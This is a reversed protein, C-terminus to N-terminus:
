CRSRWSTWCRAVGGSLRLGSRLMRELGLMKKVVFCVRSRDQIVRGRGGGRRTWRRWDAWGGCRRLRCCRVSWAGVAGEGAGGCYIWGRGVVGECAKKASLSCVCSCRIDAFSDPSYDGCSRPSRSNTASLTHAWRLPRSAPSHIHATNAVLPPPSSTPLHPTPAPSHCQPLCCEPHYPYTGSPAQLTSTLTCTPCLPPPFHDITYPRRYSPYQHAANQPTPLADMSHMPMYDKRFIM